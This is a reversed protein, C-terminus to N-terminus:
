FNESSNSCTSTNTTTCNNDVSLDDGNLITDPISLGIFSDVNYRNDSSFKTLLGVDIDPICLDSNNPYTFLCLSDSVNIYSLSFLYNSINTSYNAFIEINTMPWDEKCDKEYESPCTANPSSPLNYWTDFDQDDSDDDGFGYTQYMGAIKYSVDPIALIQSM